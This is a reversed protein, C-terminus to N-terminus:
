MPEVLWLKSPATQQGGSTGGHSWVATCCVTPFVSRVGNMFECPHWLPASFAVEWGHGELSVRRHVTQVLEPTPARFVGWLSGDHGPTM